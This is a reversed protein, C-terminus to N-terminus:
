NERAPPRLTIILSNKAEEPAFEGINPFDALDKPEYYSQTMNDRKKLKHQCTM